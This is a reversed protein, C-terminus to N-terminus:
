LMLCAEEFSLREPRAPLNESKRAYGLCLLFNSHWGQEEFFLTDVMANDFGSMPAVDLGLARAAMLMYGGQLTANRLATEEAFPMDGAYWSRLEAQPFLRPLNEYFLPDYAVIVIVPASLATQLNGESLAPRLKEKSVPHTLFTFRAPQCNGSTPGWKVMEYLQLLVSPEIDKQLWEKPTRASEFLRTAIEHSLAAVNDQGNVEESM